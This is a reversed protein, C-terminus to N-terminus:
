LHSLHARPPHHRITRTYGLSRTLRAARLLLLLLWGYMSLCVSWQPSFEVDCWKM